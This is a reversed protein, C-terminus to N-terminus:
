NGIDIGSAELCYFKFNNYAKEFDNRKNFNMENFPLKDILREIELLDEKPLENKSNMNIAKEMHHKLREIIAEDMREGLLKGLTLGRDPNSCAAISRVIWDYIHSIEGITGQSLSAKSFFGIAKDYRREKIYDKAIALLREPSDISSLREDRAEHIERIEGTILKLDISM